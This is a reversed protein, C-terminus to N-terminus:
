KQKKNYKTFLCVHALVVKAKEASAPPTGALGLRSRIEVSGQEMEEEEEELSVGDEGVERRERVKDGEARHLPSRGIQCNQAVGCDNAYQNLPVAKDSISSILSRTKGKQRVSSPSLMHWFLYPSLANFGIASLSTLFLFVRLIQFIYPLYIHHLGLWPM